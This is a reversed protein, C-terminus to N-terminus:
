VVKPVGASRMRRGAPPLPPKEGPNFPASLQAAMAELGDYVTKGGLFYLAALAYVMLDLGHNPGLVQWYKVLKGRVTNEVLKESNAIQKLLEATFWPADPIHIYGAARTEGPDLDIGNLRTLIDFKAQWTGVRYTTLRAHKHWTPKSLIPHTERGDGSIAFTREENRAQHRVWGHVHSTHHGLSDIFCVGPRLLRGSTHRYLKTRWQDLRRWPVPTGPDGELYEYDIPWTERNHGYGVVMGELRDDQTDVARTLYAVGDPVDAAYQEARAFLIHVELRTTKDEYTECLVTNVFQKLKLPDSKAELFQKVLYPWRSGDFMGVLANMWFGVDTTIEPSQPVFDGGANMQGKHREDISQLCHECVYHVTTEPSDKDWKLGWKVDKGGMMLVQLQHCHPCPVQWRCKNTTEYEDVIPSDGANTPTGFIGLSRYRFAKMRTKLHALGSGENGAERPARDIEDVRIVGVPRAQVDAARSMGIIGLYGGPFGKRAITNAKDRTEDTVLGRLVPVDRVLPDIREKSWIRVDKDRPVGWLMPSPRQHVRAGFDGKMITTKGGVQSPLMAVVRQVDLSGLADLIKRHWPTRTSDYKELQGNNDEPSLWLYQDCWASTVLRRLPAFARRREDQDIRDCQRVARELPADLVTV